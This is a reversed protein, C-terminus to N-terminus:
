RPLIMLRKWKLKGRKVTKIVNILSQIKFPKKLFAAAGMSIAKEKVTVDASSFIIKVNKDVRLIEVMADIGHMVPMKYDMLVIDPKEVCNKYKDVAKKGNSAFEVM